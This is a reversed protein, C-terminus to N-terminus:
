CITHKPAKPAKPRGTHILVVSSCCCFGQIRRCALIVGKVAGGHGRGLMLRSRMAEWWGKTGPVPDPKGDTL